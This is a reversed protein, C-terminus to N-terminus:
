IIFLLQISKVHQGQGARRWTNNGKRPEGRNGGRRRAPIDRALQRRGQRQRGIGTDSPVEDLANPPELLVELESEVLCVHDDLDVARGPIKDAHATDEGRSSVEGHAGQRPEKEGGVLYRM